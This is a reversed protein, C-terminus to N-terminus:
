LPTNPTSDQTPTSNSCLWWLTKQHRPYNLPTRSGSIDQCATQFQLRSGLHSSGGCAYRHGMLSDTLALQQQLLSACIIFNGTEPSFCSCHPRPQLLWQEQQPSPIYSLMSRARRTGLISISLWCATRIESNCCRFYLRESLSTHLLAQLPSFLQAKPPLLLASSLSVM